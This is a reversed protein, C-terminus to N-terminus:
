CCRDGDAVKVKSPLGASEMFTVAASDQILVVSGADGEVGALSSDVAILPGAGGTFDPDPEGGRAGAALM